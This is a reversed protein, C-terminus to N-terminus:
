VHSCLLPAEHMGFCQIKKIKLMGFCQIARGLWLNHNNGRCDRKLNKHQLSAKVTHHRDDCGLRVCAYACKTLAASPAM